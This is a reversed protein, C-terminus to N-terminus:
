DDFFIIDRWDIEGLDDNFIIERWDKEDIPEISRL